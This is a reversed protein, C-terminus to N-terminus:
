TQVSPGRRLDGAVEVTRRAFRQSPTLGAAMGCLWAVTAANAPVYMNFDVVSHVLIAVLSAMCGLAAWRTELSGLPEPTSSGDGGPDAMRMCRMLASGILAAIVIFGPAGLEALGQLYDNHAYAVVFQGESAKYKLFASEFGGVGTGFLPFDRVVHWSESWLAVRGESTHESLREVLSLPTAVFMVLIVVAALLGGSLCRKWLPMGRGAAFSAIVLMSALLGAFGGRSLTLLAVTLMLGALLSGVGVRLWNPEGREEFEPERRRRGRGRRMPGLAAFTFAVSLPLVMELFGALHNRIEFTGRLPEPAGGGVMVLSWVAEIGGALLLPSAVIWIKRRARVAFERAAFLLVCYACTLLFHGFTLAPVISLSAFAPSGFLPELGRLTEARGPSLIRVLAAPLPIWQLFVYAPLCAAAGILIRDYSRRSEPRM